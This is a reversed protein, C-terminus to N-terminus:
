GVINSPDGNIQQIIASGGNQLAYGGACELVEYNNMYSEIELDSLALMTISATDFASYSKREGSEDEPSLVILATTISHANGGLKRLIERTGERTQGKGIMSQEFLVATDAALIFSDPYEPALSFAKDNALNLLHEEFENASPDWPPEEVNPKVQLFPIGLTKLLDARAQSGSALILNQM